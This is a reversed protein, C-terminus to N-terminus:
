WEAFGGDRYRWQPNGVPIGPEGAAARVRDEDVEIGLGPGTLRPLHGDVAVLVEPNRLIALDPSTAANLDIVHEQAFFNPVALDLQVCAALAVPGLPCHPALQVDYSEAMTAIRFVETIGGAHAPDPQAIAIGAELVPVFEERGFLREGTAIPVSTGATLQGILRSHEPRLPEELFAPATHAVADALRRAQHVSVRGHLDIGFDAADGIAERLAALDDAFRATMAPSDLFGVPGAVSAKVLTYGNKVLTRAREPNGTREPTGWAHTYLRVRDRCPGGLLVHVPADFFRGRLDWLAMDLGAVASSLVAGGRYFGGRTLRQWHATVPLPDEGVLHGSLEHVAAAVTGPRHELSADGWGVLGEDTGVRVLVQREGLVFTEVTTIRM